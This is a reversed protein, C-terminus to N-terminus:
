DNSGSPLVLNTGLACSWCLLLFNALCCWRLWETGVVAVLDLLMGGLPVQFLRLLPGRHTRRNWVSNFGTKKPLIGILTTQHIFFWLHAKFVGIQHWISCPLTFTIIVLNNRYTLTPPTKSRYAPVSMNSTFSCTFHSNESHSRLSSPRTERSSNLSQKLLTQRQISHPGTPHVIKTRKTTWSHEASRPM